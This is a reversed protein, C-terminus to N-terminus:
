MPLARIVWGVVSVSPVWTRIPLVIRSSLFHHQAEVVRRDGVDAPDALVVLVGAVDPGPHHGHAVADAARGPAVDRRARGDLLQALQVLLGGVVQEALHRAGDVPGVVPDALEDVLLGGEVAGAGGGGDGEEVPLPEAHAVDSVAAGVEEAVLLEALQGLVVGEDLGQDVLAPDGLVLRPDVRVAVEDEPREVAHALGLGVEEVDLELGAVPQQQAAVAGAADEVVAPQGVDEPAAAGVVRGDLQDAGAEVGAAGVVDGAEDGVHDVGGLGPGSVEARHEDSGRGVELALPAARHGAEEASM